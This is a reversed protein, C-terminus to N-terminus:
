MDKPCDSSKSFPAFIPYPYMDLGEFDSLQGVMLTKKSFLLTYLQAKIYVNSLKIWFTAAAYSLGIIGNKRNRNKKEKRERRKSMCRKCGAM